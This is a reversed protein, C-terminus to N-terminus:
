EEIILTGVMGMQKHNGVSCYYEFEGAQDAVFTVETTGGPQAQTSQVNLDDIVFDHPMTDGSTLVVKVTDGKKVRIENPDFSFDEGTVNVTVEATVDEMTGEPTAQVANNPDTMSNEEITMNETQAPESTKQQTLFFAVGGGILLLGVIVLIIVLTNGKQM